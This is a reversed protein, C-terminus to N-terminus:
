TLERGRTEPLLLALLAAALFAGALLFFAPLFGFQSAMAGVAFPAAASLGRGLNYSLGMAAARIEGPFLESAIAAYGSFFGTGFFAVFPGLLLLLVPSGIVAYLPVLIAAVLLYTFYPKRRGFADAFFGFSAYGLWKGPSLVLYFTTGVVLSLGRGGKSVPLSLFSPIWTFLGWYGFMSFANMTTALLGNRLVDRQLLKGLVRSDKEKTRNKWLEPEPVGHYIWLVLLAPLVGAFFVARWGFHPFVILVIVAALAEGIAYTSQMLGLARGRHKARWTEAILAAGSSWEGGMGLGLLFRFAALQRISHSFGCAASSISYVLISAMLARTRGVRDALVGFFLGGIASAILTLSNLLGGTSKSMGFETMLYALVFSYLMVDMADLMWGLGGAILSKREAPSIDRPWQFPSASRLSASAPASSDGSAM